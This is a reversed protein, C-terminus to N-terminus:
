VLLRTAACGSFQEVVAWFTWATPLPIQSWRAFYQRVPTIDNFEFGRFGFLQLGSSKNGSRGRGVPEFNAL